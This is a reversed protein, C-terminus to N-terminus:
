IVGAAWIVLEKAVNGFAENLAGAATAADTVKAPLASRFVGSDKIRGNEGVIRASLEVIAAMEPATAIEFSRIEVLLQYDSNLGDGPRTVAALYKSNEFSQLIKAQVLKPLSDSWRATEFTPSDLAQPRVLIKQSDFLLLAAPEAITLQAQPSKAAPPFARPATLDYVVAAAAAAATGGTMRELGAVIGDVRSSNRALAYSFTNLNDITSKLASSNETLIGDLRQLVARAAQTMNQGAMPDALLLPPSDGGAALLPSKPDGGNLTVVAVGTLGQFDISAKTDARIPTGTAVAVTATVNRPDERDLKLDTVEGVRIGNFLVAAGILMGSVSNEYRVRLVARDTLGGTNHLWYVFGFVAAVAAVVFLGILAYPARTEM